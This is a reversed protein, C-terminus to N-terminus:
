SGAAQTKRYEEELNSTLTPLDNMLHRPTRPKCQGLVYSVIDPFFASYEGWIQVLKLPDAAKYKGWTVGEGFTCGSLGGDRESATTIQLGRDAGEFPLRLIQSNHPSTQQIFNKSGGGGLEVFGTKNSGYVIAASQNIDRSASLEVVKGDISLKALSLGISHNAASDMFVPVDYEAATALFSREPRPAHERTYAGLRHNFEATSLPEGFTPPKTDDYLRTDAVFRQIIDDQAELTAEEEILCDYIRTLGRKRLEDDDAKPSTQHLPLGWAFHLDHYVQAGTSCIVDIFGAEILQSIVGGLGGVAAIGSVGLWITDGEDIMTRYLKAGAALNRAEGFTGAKFEMLEEVTANPKIRRPEIPRGRFRCEDSM